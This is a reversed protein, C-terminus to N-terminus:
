RTTGVGYLPDTGASDFRFLAMCFEGILPWRRVAIVELFAARIVVGSGPNAVVFVVALSIYLEDGSPCEIWIASSCSQKASWSM